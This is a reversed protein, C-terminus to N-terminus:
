GCCPGDGVLCQGLGDEIEDLLGGMVVLQLLTRVFTRRSTSKRFLFEGASGKGAVLVSFRPIASITM